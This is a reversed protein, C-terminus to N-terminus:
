THVSVDFKVGIYEATQWAIRGYDRYGTVEITDAHTSLTAAEVAAVISSAGSEALYADLADQAQPMLGPVQSILLIIEFEHGMQGDFTEHYRGRTPLVIAAPLLNSPIEEPVNDYTSAISTIGALASKIADRIGNLSM